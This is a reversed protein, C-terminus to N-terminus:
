LNFKTTSWLCFFDLNFFLKSTHAQHFFFSVAITIVTKQQQIAQHIISQIKADTDLDISATAEDM